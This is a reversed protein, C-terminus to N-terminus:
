FIKVSQRAVIKWNNDQKHWVSLILLKISRRIQEDNTEAEFIHRVVATNEYVNITQNSLTISLFDSRKSLLTEMFTAKDQLDGDSHGYDLEAAVLTELENKTPAIMLIRLREVVNAVELEAVSPNDM